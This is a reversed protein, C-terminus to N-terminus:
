RLTYLYAAIDRGDRETVGTEPMATQPDVSHPLRIWRILNEPTNELRGALYTRLGLRILPPGVTADATPIGPITHCSDCGYQRILERGHVPEGGTLERAVQEHNRNHDCASLALCSLVAVSVITGARREAEGLWAVFLALGLLTLIVGAPVWMILGAVQQDALPDIGRRAAPALYAPFLPVGAFTLLAGLLGTHVVTTFVYFVAAGYGARGYRGYLLGWWFLISTGVFMAHQVAHVAENGVALDYLAPFHWVWVTAGHLAWAVLPTTLVRWGRGVVGVQLAGAARARAAGPLAWLWMPLPRGAMVLPAGVLMMLEHQAMHASFLQVALDDLPPLIAVILAIWGCGFAVLEAVRTHVGRRALRAYGLVYLSGAVLLLVFAALDFPSLAGPATISHAEAGHALMPQQLLLQGILTAICGRWATRWVNSIRKTTM